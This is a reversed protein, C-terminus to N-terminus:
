LCDLESVSIRGTSSISLRRGTEGKRNDCLSFTETVNARGTPAYQVTTINTDSDLTSSGDLAQFVRLTAGGNLQVTWGGGFEDATIPSTAVIDVLAGRKISESRAYTVAAVFQNAQSVIRNNQILGSMSPAAVSLVVAAVTLTVLLEVLSFGTQRAIKSHKIDM